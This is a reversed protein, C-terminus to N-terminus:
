FFFFGTTSTQPVHNWILGMDLSECIIVGKVEQGDKKRDTKKEEQKDKQNKKKKKKKFEKECFQYDDSM